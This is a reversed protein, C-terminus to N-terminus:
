DRGGEGDSLLEDLREYDYQEALAHLATAAAPDITQAQGILEALRAVNGEAVAERM